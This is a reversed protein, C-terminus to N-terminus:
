RCVYDLVREVECLVTSKLYKKSEIICKQKMVSIDYKGSTIDVLIKTLEDNDAPPYFIGTEGEIIFERNHNWDTSIIPLGSIYADIITGPCGEGITMTPFILLDYKQLIEYTSNDSPSLIGKYTVLGNSRQLSEEFEEAYDDDIPGYVDLNITNDSSLKNANYFVEFLQNIGKMRSVRAFFLIRLCENRKMCIPKFDIDKYNVIRFVNNFSHSLWDLKMKESEVVIADNVRFDKILKENEELLKTISGGIVWYILKFGFIKKLFKLYRMLFIAGNDYISVIIILKRKTLLVSLLRFALFFVRKKWSSTDILQVSHGLELFSNYLVENKVSEGDYKGNICRNKGILLINSM